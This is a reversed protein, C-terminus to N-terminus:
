DTERIGVARDQDVNRGAEPDGPATAPVSVITDEVRIPEPLTRVRNDRSENSDPEVVLGKRPQGRVDRDGLLDLLDRRHVGQHVDGLAGAVVGRAAPPM